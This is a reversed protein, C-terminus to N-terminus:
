AKKCDDSARYKMLNRFACAQNSILAPMMPAALKTAGQRKKVALAQAKNGKAKAQQKAPMRPCPFVLQLSPSCPLASAQSCEAHAHLPWVAIYLKVYIYIYIYIHM